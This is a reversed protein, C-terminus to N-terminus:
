PILHEEERPIAAGSRPLVVHRGLYFVGTPPTAPSVPTSISSILSAGKGHSTVIFGAHTAAFDFDRRTTEGNRRATSAFNIMRASQKPSDMLAPNPSGAPRLWIPGIDDNLTRICPCPLSPDPALRGRSGGFRPYIAGRGRRGTTEPAFAFARAHSGQRRAHHIRLNM